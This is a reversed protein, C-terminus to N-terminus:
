RSTPAPSRVLEDVAQWLERWERQEAPSWGPQREPARTTALLRSTRWRRLARRLDEERTAGAEGWLKLERRLWDRARQRLDQAQGTAEGAPDGAASGVLEGARAVALMAALEGWLQDRGTGLTPDADLAEVCLRLGVAYEDCAAARQALNWREALSDPSGGGAIERLRRDLPGLAPDQRDWELRQQHTKVSEEGAGLALQVEALQDLLQRLQERDFPEASPRTALVVARERVSELRSQAEAFRGADHDLGALQRGLEVWLRPWRPEPDAGTLLTEAGTQAEEFAARAQSEGGLRLWQHGQMRLADVLQRRYDGIDPSKEILERERQVLDDLVRLSESHRGAQDLLTAINMLVPLLVNAYENNAPFEQGLARWDAEAARHAQLSQDHQGERMLRVGRNFQTAARRHRSEPSSVPRDGALQFSTEAEHRIEEAATREGLRELLQAFNYQSRALNRRIEPEGPARAVNSRHLEAAQEFRRRAEGLRNLASLTSAIGTLASARLVNLQPDDAHTDCLPELEALAREYERLERPKNDGRALTTGISLHAIARTKRWRLQLAPTAVDPDALARDSLDLVSEHLRIAEGLDGIDTQLVALRSTADRLKGLSELSPQPVALLQERLQRYFELPRQLLERRLTQLQPNRALEPNAVVAQRFGDMARLALTENALARSREEEATAQAATAVRREEDARDAEVRAVRAEHAAQSRAAELQIAKDTLMVGSRIQLVAVTTAGLSTLLLGVGLATVLTRHRAVWRRTRTMWPEAHVSVPEGALYRELDAALASASPYRQGPEVAMARLCVAELGPDIEPSIERPRPFDGAVIRPLLEQPDGSTWSGFPSKGTLVEYLVTGLSYIDSAPTAAAPEGLLQEPAAHGPTGLGRTIQSSGPSARSGRVSWGAGEPQFRGAQQAM